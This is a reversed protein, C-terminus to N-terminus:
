QRQDPPETLDPHELIATYRQAAKTSLGFLDCLRRPDGHSALAEHLIRDERIKRPTIGITRSIHGHSVKDLRLATTRNIFLHPNHTTPWRTGRHDLWQALRQRVADALPIVRDALHLHGDRLDTLQLDRLVSPTRASPDLEARYRCGCGRRQHTTRTREAPGGGPCPVPGTTTPPTWSAAPPPPRQERNLPAPNPPSRSHAVSTPWRGWGSLVPGRGLYFGVHDSYDTMVM